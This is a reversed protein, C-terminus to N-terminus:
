DDPNADDFRAPSSLFPKPPIQVSKLSGELIVVVKSMQPRGSPITQICWFSLLVMKKAMEKEEETTVGLIRLDKDLEIAEYIWYPFYIESTRSVGVDVNKRGRVMELVLMGYSYVDSRHSARVALGEGKSESKLELDRSRLTSVVTELSLSDRGYKIANKVERYTEPLSNLLIVAHHEDDFVVNCNALSLILRNFSDLNADLDQRLVNDSLHLIITSMAIEDIELKKEETVDAAYSGDIVRAVKMLVLM